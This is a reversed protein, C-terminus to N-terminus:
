VAAPVIGEEVAAQYSSFRRLVINEKKQETETAARGTYYSRWRIVQGNKGATKKIM